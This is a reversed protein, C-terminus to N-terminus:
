GETQAKAPVYKKRTPHPMQVIITMHFPKHCRACKRKAHGFGLQVDTTLVCDGCVHVRTIEANKPVPINIKFPRTENM